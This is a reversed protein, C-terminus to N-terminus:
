QTHRKTNHPRARYHGHDHTVMVTCLFRSPGDDEVCDFARCVAADWIDDVVVLVAGEAGRAARRLEVAQSAVGNARARAPMSDNDTLQHNM